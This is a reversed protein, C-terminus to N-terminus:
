CFSLGPRFCDSLHHISLKSSVTGKSSSTLNTQVKGDVVRIIREAMELVLQDHSSFLFTIKKERNLHRFVDLLKQATKSDLNATPEDAFVIQPHTVIARAVAVRQQQGGSLESPFRKSLEGCGTEELAEEALRRREKPSIGKLALPYEVNESASLVPFLNYSQFVFGVHEARLQSLEQKSLESVRHGLLSVEGSSPNDLGAALNLITSKGSGSPGALATFEGAEVEFSVHQIATEFPSYQKSVDTFSLIM